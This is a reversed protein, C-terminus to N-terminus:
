KGRGGEDGEGEEEEPLLPLLRYPSSIKVVGGARKGGSPHLQLTRTAVHLM